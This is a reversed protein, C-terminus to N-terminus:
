VYSERKLEPPPSVRWALPAKFKVTDVKDDTKKWVTRITGASQWLVSVLNLTQLPVFKCVKAFAPLDTGLTV